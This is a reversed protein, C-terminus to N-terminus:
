NARPDLSRAIPAVTAGVKEVVRYESGAAVVREIERVDHGPVVLFHTSHARVREYDDLGATIRDACQPDACECVFQADDSEFREATTAIAENVERFVAETRAMSAQDM